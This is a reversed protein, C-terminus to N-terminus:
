IDLEGAEIEAGERGEKAATQRPTIQLGLYDIM